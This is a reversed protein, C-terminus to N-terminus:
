ISIDIKEELIKYRDSCQYLGEYDYNTYFEELSSSIITEIKGPFIKFNVNDGTM